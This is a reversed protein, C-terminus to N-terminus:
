QWFLLRANNTHPSYLFPFDERIFARSFSFIQGTSKPMAVDVTEIMLYPFTVFNVLYKLTGHSAPWSQQEIWLSTTPNSEMTVYEFPVVKSMSLVMYRSISNGLSTNDFPKINISVGPMPDKSGLCKNKVWCAKGFASAMNKTVSKGSGKSIVSNSKILSFIHEEEFGKLTIMLLDFKTHLSSTFIWILSASALIEFCQPFCTSHM